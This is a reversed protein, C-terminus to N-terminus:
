FFERNNVFEFGRVGLEIDENCLVVEGVLFFILLFVVLSGMLLLFYGWYCCFFIGFM